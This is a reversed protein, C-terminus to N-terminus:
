HWMRVTEQATKTLFLRGDKIVDVMAIDIYHDMGGSALRVRREEVGLVTGVHKGDSGKVEMREKIHSAKIMVTSRKAKPKQTHAFRRCNALSRQHGNTGLDGVANLRYSDGNSLNAARGSRSSQQCRMGTARKFSRPSRRRVLGLTLWIRKFAWPASRRSARSSVLIGDGATDIIRGGHESVM